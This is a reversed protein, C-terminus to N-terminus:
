SIMLMVVVVDIDNHDNDDDIIMMMMMMGDAMKSPLVPSCHSAILNLSAAQYV